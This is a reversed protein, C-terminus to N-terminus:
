TNRLVWVSERQTKIKEGRKLKEIEKWLSESGKEFNRKWKTETYIYIGLVSHM